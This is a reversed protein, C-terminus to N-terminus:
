DEIPKAEPTGKPPRGAKVPPVAVYKRIESAVCWKGGKSIHSNALRKDALWKPMETVENTLKNYLEVPTKVGLNPKKTAM